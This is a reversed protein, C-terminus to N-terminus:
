RIRHRHLGQAVATLVTDVVDDWRLFVQFYDFRLVTYGRLVLRADAELDRRREAASSHFEFGDLQVVLAEGILGDVSRGDVRVQQRVIVGIARMGRVFRTEMGSDSLEDAIRALASARTSRWAIRRLIAADVRQKRIASEWVTLADFPPICRAVHFLVNVIPEEVLSRSVPAPASAWHLHVGAVANRSATAQVAVHIGDHDPTWLGHLGAASVCTARGGAAAAMARRRDATPRVLWSRRERTLEGEAVAAAMERHTYGAILLQSSHAVGHRRDIWEIITMATARRPSDTPM